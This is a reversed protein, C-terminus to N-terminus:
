PNVRESLTGKSFSYTATLKGSGLYVTLVTLNTPSLNDFPVFVTSPKQIWDLCKPALGCKQAFDSKDSFLYTRNAACYNRTEHLLMAEVNSADWLEAQAKVRSFTRFIVPLLMSALIAIIAIVCLLEILSFAGAQPAETNASFSGPQVQKSMVTLKGHWEM